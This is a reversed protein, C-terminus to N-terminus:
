HVLSIQGHHPSRLVVIVIGFLRYGIPDSCRRREMPAKKDKQRGGRLDPEDGGFYTETVEDTGTRPLLTELADPVLRDLAVAAPQAGFYREDPCRVDAPISGSLSRPLDVTSSRELWSQPGRMALPVSTCVM